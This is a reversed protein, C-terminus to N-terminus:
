ENWFKTLGRFDAGGDETNKGVGPILEINFDFFEYGERYRLRGSDHLLVIGGPNLVQSAVKLCDVRYKDEGNILGDVLIFDYKKKKILPYNVYADPDFAYVLEVNEPTKGLLSNFWEKDSEISTWKSITLYHKNPFYITSGGAGWELCQKPKLEEILNDIIVTEEHAMFPNPNITIMKNKGGSLRLVM